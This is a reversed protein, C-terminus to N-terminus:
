NKTQKSATVWAGCLLRILVSLLERGALYVWSNRWTVHVTTERPNGRQVDTPAVAWKQVRVCWKNQYEQTWSCIKGAPLQSYVSTGLVYRRWVHLNSILRRARWSSFIHWRSGPAYLVSLETSPPIRACTSVLAWRCRLWVACHVASKWRFAFCVRVAYNRVLGNPCHVTTKANRRGRYRLGKQWYSIIVHEIIHLLKRRHICGSYQEWLLPWSGYVRSVGWIASLLRPSNGSVGFDLTKWVSGYHDLCIRAKERKFWFVTGVCVWLLIDDRM